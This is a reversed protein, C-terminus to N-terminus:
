KQDDEGGDWRDRKIRGKDDEGTVGKTGPCAGDNGVDCGECAGEEDEEGGASGEKATGDGVPEVGAGGELADDAGDLLAGLEEEEDAECRVWVVDHVAEESCGFAECELGVGQAGREGEELHDYV